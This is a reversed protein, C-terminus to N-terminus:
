CPSGPNREVRRVACSVRGARASIRTMDVAFGKTLEGGTANERRMGSMTAAAKKMSASSPVITTVASGAIACLRPSDVSVSVALM